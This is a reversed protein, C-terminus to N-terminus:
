KDEPVGSAEFYQECQFLFESPPKNGRPSYKNPLPVKYTEEGGRTVNTMQQVLQMQRMDERMQRLESATEEQSLSRQAPSSPDPSEKVRHDGISRHDTTQAPPAGGELPGSPEALEQEPPVEAGGMAALPVHPSATEIEREARRLARQERSTQGVVPPVVEEM